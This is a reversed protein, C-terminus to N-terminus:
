DKFKEGEVEVIIKALIIIVNSISGPWAWGVAPVTTEDNAVVGKKDVDTLLQHVYSKAIFIEIDQHQM